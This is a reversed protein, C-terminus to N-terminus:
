SSVPDLDFGVRPRRSLTHAPYLGQMLLGLVKGARHRRDCPGVTPTLAPSPTQWPSVDALRLSPPQLAIEVAAGDQGGKGDLATSYPPEGHPAAEDPPRVVSGLTPERPASPRDRSAHAANVAPPWPVHKESRPESIRRARPVPMHRPPAARGEGAPRVHTATPIPAGALAKEGRGTWSCSGLRSRIRSGHVISTSGPRPGDTPGRVAIPSRARVAVGREAM